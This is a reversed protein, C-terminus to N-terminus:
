EDDVDDDSSEMRPPLWLYLLEADVDAYLLSNNSKERGGDKLLSRLSSTVLASWDTYAAQLTVLYTCGVLLLFTAVIDM